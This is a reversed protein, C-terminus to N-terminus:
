IGYGLTWEAKQDADSAPHGGSPPEVDLEFWVYKGFPRPGVGWRSAIADVLLLGRGHLDDTTPHRVRPRTRNADHCEVRVREDDACVMLLFAGGVPVGHRVANTAVESVCLLVEDLDFARADRLVSRAFDRAEPVSATSRAFRRIVDIM